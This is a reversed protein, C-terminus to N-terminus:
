ETIELIVRMPKCNSKANVFVGNSSYYKGNLEESSLNVYSGKFTYTKGNKVIEVSGADSPYLYCNKKSITQAKSTNAKKARILYPHNPLTQTGWGLVKRVPVISGEVTVDEIEAIEFNASWDLYYLSVPLIITGWKATTFKRSYSFSAIERGKDNKYEEGDSLTITEKPIVVENEKADAYGINYYEERTKAIQKDFESRMAIAQEDFERKAVQYGDGKASDIVEALFDLADKQLKDSIM